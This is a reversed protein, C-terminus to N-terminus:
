WILLWCHLFLFVLYCVLCYYSPLVVVSNFVFSGAFWYLLCLVFWLVCVGLAFWM